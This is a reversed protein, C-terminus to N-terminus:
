VEGDRSSGIYSTVEYAKYGMLYPELQTIFIHFISLLSIEKSLFLASNMSSNPVRELM